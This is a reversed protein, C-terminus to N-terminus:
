REKVENLLKLINEREERPLKSIGRAFAASADTGYVQSLSRVTSTIIRQVVQSKSLKPSYVFAKGVKKRSVIKKSHLRDLITMVTTYAIKKKAKLCRHVDNVTTEDHNWLCDMIKRELPGLTTSQTM